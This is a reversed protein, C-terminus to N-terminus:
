TLIGVAAFSLIFNFVCFLCLKYCNVRMVEKYQTFLIMELDPKMLLFLLLLRLFALGKLHSALSLCYIMLAMLVFALQICDCDNVKLWMHHTFAPHFIRATCKKNSRKKKLKLMSM